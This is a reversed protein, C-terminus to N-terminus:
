RVLCLAFEKRNVNFTQTFTVADKVAAAGDRISGSLHMCFKGDRKGEFAFQLSTLYASAFQQRRNGLLLDLQKASLAIPQDTSLRLITSGVTLQPTM